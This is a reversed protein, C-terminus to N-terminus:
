ARRPNQGDSEEEEVPPGGVHTLPEGEDVNKSEVQDDTKLMDSEAAEDLGSPGIAGEGRTWPTGALFRIAVALVVLIGLGAVYFTTRPGHGAAILGGVVFGLGTGAAIISEFVSMVRAQM